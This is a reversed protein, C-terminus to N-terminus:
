EFFLEQNCKNIYDEQEHLTNYIKFEKDNKLINDIYSKPVKYQKKFESYVDYYEKNESINFKHLTIKKCFIEELQKEWLHIDKFLLKIIVLNEKEIINYRKVFDFDKIYEIEYENFIEYLPHFGELNNIYKDNFINILEDIKYNRYNIGIHSNINQFFSSIKREVPNRYSDIIYFKKNSNKNSNKNIIEILEYYSYPVERSFLSHLKINKINNHTLTESLTCSGCKGGSLIICDLDDM